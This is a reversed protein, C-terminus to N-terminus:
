IKIRRRTETTASCPMWCGPWTGLGLQTKKNTPGYMLSYSERRKRVSNPESIRPQRQWYQTLDAALDASIAADSPGPTVGTHELSKGDTMIVDSDTISAGFFVVTGAGVKYSYHEAEMVSGSTHDGMVLGRKQLQIVRRSSRQRPVPNM